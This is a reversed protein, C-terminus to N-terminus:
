RGRPYRVSLRSVLLSLDCNVQERPPHRSFGLTSFMDRLNYFLPVDPLERSVAKLLSETRGAAALRPHRAAVRALLDKGHVGSALGGDEPAGCGGLKSEDLTELTAGEEEAVAAALLHTAREVWAEDHLPGSWIPGGM